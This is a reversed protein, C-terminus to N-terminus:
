GNAFDFPDLHGGPLDYDSDSDSDSGERYYNLLDEILDRNTEAAGILTGITDRQSGSLSSANSLLYTLFGLYFNNFNNLLNEMEHDM